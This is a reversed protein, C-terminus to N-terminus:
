GEAAARRLAQQLAAAAPGPHGDGLAVGDLWVVPMLERVSSSTFAEEAAALESRTYVGEAIEYGLAPAAELVFERTIGALIGTELSPTFLTQGNRWWVNTKPGELVIEDEALFIADDAGHREAEAIAAMNAAYSTSKVGGLIWPAKARLEYPVGLPLTIAKMGRARLPEHGPPIAAFLAFGVPAGGDSSGPTWVLRLSADGIGEHEIAGTVLEHFARQDPVPLDMRAASISLRTLHDDLRFPKGAYVRTTEFAARGRLLAEDDARLVPQAPDVLGRGLVTLALTTMQKM